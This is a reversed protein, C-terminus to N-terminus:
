KQPWIASHMPEANQITRRMQQTLGVDTEDHQELSVRAGYQCPHVVEVDSGTSL